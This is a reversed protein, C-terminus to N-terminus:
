EVEVHGGTAEQGKVTYSIKEFEATYTANGTVTVTRPNDTNGDSWRTFEYCENPTATLQIVTGENYTGGGTVTGNTASTTITYQPVDKVLRVSFGYHREEKSDIDAKVKDIRTMLRNACDADYATSMWYDGMILSSTAVTGNRRFGAAPLFVAGAKEMKDWQALTYDNSTYDAADATFTTGAPQEWEDPLFIYGTISNVTATSRKMAANVRGSYLYELQAGTLTRWQDPLNGGNYIANYVGWDAYQNSDILSNEFSGGPYYDSNVESTSYPQYANAGSNWGSTGWGFLDIWGAYSASINANGDAIM